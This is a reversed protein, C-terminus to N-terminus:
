RILDDTNSDNTDNSRTEETRMQHERTQFLIDTSTARTDMGMM